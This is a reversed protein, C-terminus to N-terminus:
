ELPTGPPPLVIELQHCLGPRDARTGVASNIGAAIIGLALDHLPPAPAEPDM